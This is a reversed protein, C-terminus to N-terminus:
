KIRDFSDISQIHIKSCQEIEHFLTNNENDRKVPDTQKYNESNSLNATLLKALSIIEKEKRKLYYKLFTNGLYFSSLGAWQSDIQHHISLLLSLSQNENILAARIGQAYRHHEYSFSYFLKSINNIKTKRSLVHYINELRIHKYYIKKQINLNEKKM